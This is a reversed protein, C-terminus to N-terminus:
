SNRSSIEGIVANRIQNTEDAGLQNQRSVWTLFSRVNVRAGRGTKGNIVVHGEACARSLVGKNLMGEGLVQNTARVLEIQRVWEYRDDAAPEIPRCRDPDQAEPKDTPKASAEARLKADLEDLTALAWHLHDDDPRRLCRGLRNVGDIGRRSVATELIRTVRLVEEDHVIHGHYHGTRKTAETFRNVMQRWRASIALLDHEDMAAYEKCLKGNSARVEGEDLPEFKWQDAPDTDISESLKLHGEIRDVLEVVDRLVEASAPSRVIADRLSTTDLGLHEAQRMILPFTEVVRQRANANRDNCADRVALRERRDRDDGVGAAEDTLRHVWDRSDQYEWMARRFERVARAVETINLGDSRLEKTRMEPPEPTRPPRPEAPIPMRARALGYPTARVASRWGSGSPMGPRWADYRQQEMFGVRVAESIATEVAVAISEPPRDCWMLGVIQKGVRALARREMWDRSQVEPGGYGFPVHTPNFQTLQGLASALLTLATELRAHQCVRPEALFQTVLRMRSVWEPTVQPDDVPLGCIRLLMDDALDSGDNAAKEADVSM